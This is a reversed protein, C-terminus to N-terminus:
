LIRWASLAMAVGLALMLAGATLRLAKLPLLEALRQKLIIAAIGAVLMGLWGGLAALLWHQGAAGEVALIFQSKD